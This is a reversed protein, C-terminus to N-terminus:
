KSRARMLDKIQEFEIKTVPLPNGERQGKKWLADLEKVTVNASVYKNYLDMVYKPLAIEKQEVENMEDLEKRVFDWSAIGDKDFNEDFFKYWSKQEDTEPESGYLWGFYTDNESYTETLSKRVNMKQSANLIPKQKYIDRVDKMTGHFKVLESLEPTPIDDFIPFEKLIADARAQNKEGLTTKDKAETPYLFERQDKTTNTVFATRDKDSMSEIGGQTREVIDLLLEQKELGPDKKPQLSKILDRDVDQFARYEEIKGPIQEDTFGSARLTVALTEDDTADAPDGLRFALEMLKDDPLIGLRDDEKVSEPANTVDYFGSLDAKPPAPKKVNYGRSILWNYSENKQAQTGDGALLSLHSEVDKQREQKKKEDERALLLRGIDAGIEGFKIHKLGM